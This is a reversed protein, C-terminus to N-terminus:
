STKKNRRYQLLERPRDTQIITAGHAIM